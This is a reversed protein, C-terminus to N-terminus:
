GFLGRARELDQADDIETWRRDGIDYAGLEWGQELMAHYADEYYADGKGDQRVLREITDFLRPGDAAAIKEIGISEGSSDELPLWKGMKRVQGAPDVVAKMAEEDLKGRSDIAIASRWPCALLGGVIAGDLVLDGDLKIFSKGALADRAAYVSWANGLREYAENFVTTVPVAPPQDTLWREIAQHQYGTVLVASALGAQVCASLLGGLLSQGSVEVLAKPRDATLPMLRSGTGAV